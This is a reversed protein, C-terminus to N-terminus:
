RTDCLGAVARLGDDRLRPIKQRMMRRVTARYAVVDPEVVSFAPPTFSVALTRSPDIGRLLKVLDPLRRGPIDTSVHTKAAGSLRALSRVARMSDIRGAMAALICRQRVMRTYDSSASRSRAYALAHRGDLSVKQGEGVQIDTWPEGPYAPSTLDDVSDPAIMRIGGLADVVEVFGRLDVMVYYHVPIGLLGSITQKLATAGPDRGGPFLEPRAQAFRYLANLIDPFRGYAQGAKGVLPANDLNRPISFLAARGTNAQVSVAIMTDARLGVRLYGADGGILLATTWKRSEPEPPPLPRDGHLARGTGPVLTPLFALEAPSLVDQPESNAFVTDITDYTVYTGWGLVTHPAATLVALVLLSFATVFPRARGRARRKQRAALAYADAVIWFRVVLVLANAVLLGLLVDLSVIDDALTAGSRAVYWAGFAVASVALAAIALGRGIRGSYVQGAGPLVLSLLGSLFPRRM